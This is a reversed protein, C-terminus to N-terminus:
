LEAGGRRRAAQIAAVINPYAGCRCLNGSMQERVEPDTRAHGERLLGIASMIQGPTCYGCQLGDETVFAAQMPHLAEGRALGEITTIKAGDAMVALTLCALVRQGDVLVTCAGCQGHDCGKKTGTLAMRERLVDLVSARADVRLTHSRENIRWSIEVEPPAGAARDAPPSPSAGGDDRAAAPAGDLGLALWSAAVLSGVVIERRSPQWGTRGRPSTATDDLGARGSSCEEASGCGVAQPDVPVQRSYLSRGARELASVVSAFTPAREPGGSPAQAHGHVHVHVHVFRIIGAEDIVFLAAPTGAHVGYRSRLALLEPGSGTDASAFLELEDDPRFCWLSSEAVILLVAGLGRLEARAAGLAEETANRPDWGPLFALVLPQGAFSALTLADLGALSVVFSPAPM